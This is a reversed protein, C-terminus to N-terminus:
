PHGSLCQNMKYASYATAAASLFPAYRAAAAGLDKTAMMRLPSGTGPGGTPTPIAVPSRVIGRLASSLPSTGAAAGKTLFPKSGAVPQGLQFLAAGTDGGLFGLGACGLDYTTERYALSFITRQAPTLPVDSDQFYYSVSSSEGTKGNVTVQTSPTPVQATDGQSNQVTQLDGSEYVWTGGEDSCAGQSSTAGKEDPSGDDYHCFAEGSPDLNTTPNNGVYAYMNWTQPFGPVTM